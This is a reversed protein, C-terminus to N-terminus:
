GDLLGAALNELDELTEPEEQMEFVKKGGKKSKKKKDKADDDDQEFWKKVKKKPREDESDENDHDEGAIPLSRMFELADHGDDDDGTILQPADDEDGRTIGAREDAERAKRKERKDRKKQKAAAKDEVDAERVKDIEEEVFKHRLAAADGERKFDEEDQLEYLEHANGDDDFVLKSPNGKFKLMKKKSKLAKERRKSDIIYPEDGGLSLMKTSSNGPNAKQSEADLDSDNLRRKVSLFDADSDSDDVALKSYHSSLVDQNTREFMKDYKTRVEKKKRPKKAGDLDMESESGSSM